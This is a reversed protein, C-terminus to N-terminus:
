LGKINIKYNNKIVKRITERNVKYIEALKIQSFGWVWYKEYIDEVSSESLKMNAIAVKTITEINRSIGIRLMSLKNKTEDSAKRGLMWTNKGTMTKSIKERVDESVIKGKNGKANTNGILRKKMNDLEEPSMKRGTSDPCFDGGGTHNMVRDFGYISRYYAIWYREYSEWNNDSVEEIINIEPKFGISLLHKIWNSKKTKCKLQYKSLHGRLRLKINNTRGIYIKNSSKHTLSYIFM